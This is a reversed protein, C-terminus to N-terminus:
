VYIINLISINYLSEQTTDVVVVHHYKGSM